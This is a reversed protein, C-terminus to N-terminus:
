PLRQTAFPPQDPFFDQGSLAQGLHTSLLSAKGRAKGPRLSNPGKRWWRLVEWLRVVM